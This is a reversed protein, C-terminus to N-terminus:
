KRVRIIKDYDLEENQDIIERLNEIKIKEHYLEEKMCELHKGDETLMANEKSSKILVGLIATLCTIGFFIEEKDTYVWGLASLASAAFLSYILLNIKKLNDYNINSKEKEYEEKLKNYQNILLNLTIENKKM